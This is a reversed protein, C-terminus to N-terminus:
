LELISSNFLTQQQHVNECLRANFMFKLKVPRHAKSVAVASSGSISNCWSGNKSVGM